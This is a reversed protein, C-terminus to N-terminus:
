RFSVALLMMSYTAVTFAPQRPVSQPSRVQAHGVGLIDKEDRHNVEIQWRDFSAQVLQEIPSVLDTCLMYAPERYNIKSHLTLKYPQPALVILRLPRTGSGRRWLVERVEKYRISRWTGGFWITAQRWALNPDQRLQEPTFTEQRYKRRQGPEAPFCLRADKRCRALLETRELHARFITRNCFSGDLSCLMKRHIGGRHDLSCRVNRIVQLTQVSLNHDRKAKRYAQREAESARKGPKKVTPAETFRVPIARPDFEGRRYHPFLLSAQIFRLGYLFNVHFPPSMPDRQWFAGPIKLGEKALKTDDFAVCVFEETYEKLYTDFVPNFLDDQNWKGRSYIKYDASWDQHHRDLACV